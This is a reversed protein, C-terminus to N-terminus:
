TGNNLNFIIYIHYVTELGSAVVFEHSQSNKNIKKWTSDVKHGKWKNLCILWADHSIRFSEEKFQLFIGTIERIEAGWFSGM